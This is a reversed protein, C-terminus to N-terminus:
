LLFESRQKTIIGSRDMLQHNAKLGGVNASLKKHKPSEVQNSAQEPYEAARDELPAFAEISHDGTLTRDNPPASPGNVADSPLYSSRVANNISSQKALVHFTNDSKTLYSSKAEEDQEEDIVERQM